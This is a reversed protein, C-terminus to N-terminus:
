APRRRGFLGRSRMTMVAKGEEDSVTVEWHVTGRAPNRESPTADRVRAVVTLTMGPRVPRLWRLENIGPSGQSSSDVLVSDVLLRMMLAGTHWGSAILGGFASQKAAEPDTHFVQPDYRTAFEIIEDETVTFTGLPLDTGPTFDEFYRVPDAQWTAM